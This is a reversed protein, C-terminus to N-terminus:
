RGRLGRPGGVLLLGPREMQEVPPVGLPRPRRGDERDVARRPERASTSALEASASMSGEWVPDRIDDLARYRATLSLSRVENTGRFLYAGPVANDICNERLPRLQLGCGCGSRPRNDKATRAVIAPITEHHCPQEILM